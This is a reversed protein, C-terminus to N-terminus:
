GIARRRRRTLALGVLGSGVLLLAAPEPVSQAKQGGGQSNPM